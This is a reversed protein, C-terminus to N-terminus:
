GAIRRTDETWRATLLRPIWIAPLGIVANGPDAPHGAQSDTLLTAPQVFQAPTESLPLAYLCRARGFPGALGVRSLDSPAQVTGARSDILLEPRSSNKRLPDM